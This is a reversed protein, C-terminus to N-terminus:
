PHQPASLQAYNLPNTSGNAGLSFGTGNMPDDPPFGAGVHTIHDVVIALPPVVPTAAMFVIRFTV